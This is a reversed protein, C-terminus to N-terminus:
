RISVSNKVTGQIFSSKGNEGVIATININKPFISKYDTNEDITLNKNDYSCTFRPSFNFDENKIKKYNEIM